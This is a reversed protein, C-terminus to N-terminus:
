NAALPRMLDDFEALDPMPLSDLGDVGAVHARWADLMQARDADSVYPVHYAFFPTLVRLGAYGLTGQLLPSFLRELSGHLSSPGFMHARGGLSAGVLARKGALGARGYIRRGGYVPGALFVRDFWGKLLAPVSFWFVPFTFVVLDAATLRAYEREIDPLLRAAQAAARQEKAYHLYDPFARVPFDSARAVPDFAEAYLDSVEVRYGAARLEEVAVDRMAAVFSAPEPHAHVVLAQM